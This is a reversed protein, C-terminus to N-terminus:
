PILQKLTKEMAGLGKMEAKTKNGDEAMQNVACIADELVIVVFELAIADKKDLSLKNM